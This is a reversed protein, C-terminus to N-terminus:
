VAEEQMRRINVYMVPLVSIFLVTAVAAGLGINFETFARQYMENALVQTDFNGNTLVNVIDFVKMVLVILTTVVVGITPSIQPITVSWFTDSETAGDVKSAEILEAPVAKIASSMIVMAFGTQIWILVVMLWVNNWPQDTFFLYPDQVLEGAETIRAGGVGNIIQFIFWVVPVLSVLSGIALANRKARWGVIAAVLLGLAVLALVVITITAGTTQGYSALGLNVWLYNLVGTQENEGARAVYMFRWIISAGVFSIAMPMFIISKAVSEAKIRDALVAIALGLGTAIGVVYLVWWLNNFITGRLFAFAATLVLFGGILTLGTSSPTFRTRHGTQRGAWIAWVIGLVIALAGWIFIGSTFISRWDSLNFIEPDTFIFVYNDFGLLEEGRRDFFSLLATRIAPIVLTAAIFLLAPALFIAARSRDALVMRRVYPEPDDWGFRIGALLGLVGAAILWETATGEGLAPVAFAGLLWGIWLGTFAAPLPGHGRLRALGVLVAAGVAPWLVLALPELAPYGKSLAFATTLAGAALGGLGTVLLRPTRSPILAMALGIGLGVVAGVPVLLWDGATWALVDTGVLVVVIASGLVAGTIARFRVWSNALQDFWLNAGVFIVGAVAISITVGLVTEIIKDM